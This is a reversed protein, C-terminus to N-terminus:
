KTVHCNTCNPRDPHPTKPAGGTGERHCSLCDEFGVIAHPINPARYLASEFDKLTEISAGEKPQMLFSASGFVM